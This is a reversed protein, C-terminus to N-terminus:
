MSRINSTLRVAEAYIASMREAHTRLNFRELALHVASRDFGADLAESVAGSFRAPDGRAIRGVGGLVERTVPSAVAAIPLGAAMAEALVLGQTESLSPFAFADASAYIDPLDSPDAAGAFTVRAAIGLAHARAELTARAPGDGVLALRVRPDAIRALAEIALGVNKERGLRSVLLVLRDAAGAGLRARVADSRRGAAFRAVDIASPVVRIPGAVGIERLRVEMARTPVVVITARDAFARAIANAARRTSAGEFPVYHAYQDLRTHYTYVLPLRARRAARMALMGTVFPSHAHVVDSAAVAARVAPGLAPVCLRYATATPLPLSPIRVIDPADAARGRPPFWPAVVTLAIGADAAGARLADISAVVGNRVPRYVETFATVVVRAM